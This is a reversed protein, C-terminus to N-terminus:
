PTKQRIQKCRRRSLNHFEGDLSLFKIQSSQYALLWGEEPHAEWVDLRGALSDLETRSSFYIRGLVMPDPTEAAQAPSLTPCFSSAFLLVSILLLMLTRKM